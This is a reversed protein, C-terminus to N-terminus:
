KEEVEEEAEDGCDNIDSRGDDERIIQEKNNHHHKPNVFVLVM